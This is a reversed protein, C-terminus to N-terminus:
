FPSEKSSICNVDEKTLPWKKLVDKFYLFFQFLDDFLTIMSLGLFIGLTGGINSVMGALTIKADQTIVTKMPHEFYVQVLSYRKGIDNLDLETIHNFISETSDNSKMKEHGHILDGIPNTYLFDEYESGLSNLEKHGEVRKNGNYQVGTCEQICFSTNFGGLKLTSTSERFCIAGDFDCIPKSEPDMNRPTCGCKEASLHYITDMVCNVRTYKEKNMSSICKRKETSMKEFNNTMKRDTISVGINVMQEDALIKTPFTKVNFIDPYSGSEHLYLDVSLPQDDKDHPINKLNLLFKFGNLSGVNTHRQGDYTFCKRDQAKLKSPKFLNCKKLHNEAFSCLPVLVYDEYEDGHVKPQNMWSELLRIRKESVDKFREDFFHTPSNCYYGHMMIRMLCNAASIYYTFTSNTDTFDTFPEYLWYVYTTFQDNEPLPTGHLFYWLYYPDIPLNMNNKIHIMWTKGLTSWWDANDNNEIYAKYIYYELLKDTRWYKDLAWFTSLMDKFLIEGRIETVVGGKINDPMLGANDIIASKFTDNITNNTIDICDIINWSCIDKKIMEVNRPHLLNIPDAREMWAKFGTLQPSPDETTFDYDRGLHILRDIYAGDNGTPTLNLKKQLLDLKDFDNRIIYVLNLLWKMFDRKTDQFPFLKALTQKFSSGQRKDKMSWISREWEKHIEEFQEANIISPQLKSM